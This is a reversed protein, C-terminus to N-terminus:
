HFHKVEFAKAEHRLVGCLAGARDHLRRRMEIIRLKKGVNRSPKASRHRALRRGGLANREAILRTTRARPHEADESSAGSECRQVFIM